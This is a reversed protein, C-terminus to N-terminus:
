LREIKVIQSMGVGKKLLEMQIQHHRLGAPLVTSYTTGNKRYTIRM